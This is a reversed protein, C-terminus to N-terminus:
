LHEACFSSPATCCAAVRKTCPKVNVLFVYGKIFRMDNPVYVVDKSIVIINYWCHIEVTMLIKLGYLQETLLQITMFVLRLISDDASHKYPHEMHPKQYGCKRFVNLRIKSQM